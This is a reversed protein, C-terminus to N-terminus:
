ANSPPGAINPLVIRQGSLRSSLCRPKSRSHNSQFHIFRRHLAAAQVSGGHLRRTCAIAAELRFNCCLFITELRSHHGLKHRLEHKVCQFSLLVIIQSKNRSFM